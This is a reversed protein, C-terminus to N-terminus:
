GASCLNPACRTFYCTWNTYCSSGKTFGERFDGGGINGNDGILFTTVKDTSAENNQSFKLLRELEDSREPNLFVDIIPSKKKVDDQAQEENNTNSQGEPCDKPKMLYEGLM